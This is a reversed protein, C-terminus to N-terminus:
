DDSASGMNRLATEIAAATAIPREMPFLHSGDLMIVRGKTLRETMSLGFTKSEWSQIGGIFSAPCKLPHRKLIQDLNDPLTNYINTEVSRDFALNRRGNLETTGYTAYDLLVQDDWDAFAKKPRFHAVTQEISDWATRRQRSLRSPLLSGSLPTGKIIELATSRWGSLLPADILVLGKTFEPRKVALMLSLIGGLSHGVLWVKQGTKDIQAQVFDSLQQVLHPWNNTVPYRPDHGFKEVARVTYGRARLSKFMVRYTSAPFSNAHSFIIM